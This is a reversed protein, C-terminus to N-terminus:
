QGDDEEPPFVVWLGECFIAILMHHMMLDHLGARAHPDLQMWYLESWDFARLTWREVPRSLSEARASM